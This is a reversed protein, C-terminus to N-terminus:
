SCSIPTSERRIGHPNQSGFVSGSAQHCAGKNAPVQQISFMAKFEQGEVEWTSPISALAERASLPEVLVAVDGTWGWRGKIEKKKRLQRVEGPRGRLIIKGTHTHTHM